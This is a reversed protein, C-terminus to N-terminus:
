EFDSSVLNDISWNRGIVDIGTSLQTL